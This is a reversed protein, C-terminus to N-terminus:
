GFFEFDCRLGLISFNHPDTMLVKGKLTDLKLEYIAGHWGYYLANNAASVCGGPRGRGQLDTMQTITGTDLDYRYLNSQNERDSTFVFSRNDNLWCPDTFYFHNSHGMYDTLRLIERKSHSDVYRFQPDQYTKGKTM